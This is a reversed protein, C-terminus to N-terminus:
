GLISATFAWAPADVSERLADLDVLGDEGVEFRGCPLVWGTRKLAEALSVFSAANGRNHKETVDVEKWGVSKYARM